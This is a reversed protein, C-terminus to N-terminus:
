PFDTQASILLPQFDPLLTSQMDMTLEVCGSILLLAGLM